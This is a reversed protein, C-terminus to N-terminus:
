SLIIKECKNGCCSYRFFLFLLRWTLNRNHRTPFIAIRRVCFVVLCLKETGSFSLISQMRENTQRRKRENGIFVEPSQQFWLTTENLGCFLIKIRFWHQLRLEIDYFLLVSLRRNCPSRRSGTRREISCVFQSLESEPKPINITPLSDLFLLLINISKEVILPIPDLLTDRAESNMIRFTTTVQSIFKIKTKIRHQRQWTEWNICAQHDRAM